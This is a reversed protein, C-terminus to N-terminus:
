GNTRAAKLRLKIPPEFARTAPEILLLNGLFDLAELSGDEVEAFPVIAKVHPNDKAFAGGSITGLFM